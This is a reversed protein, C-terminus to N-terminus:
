EASSSEADRRQESLRADTVSNARGFVAIYRPAAPLGEFLDMELAVFKDPLGGYVIIGRIEFRHEVAQVPLAAGRPVCGIYRALASQDGGIIADVLLPEFGDTGLMATGFCHAIKALLRGFDAIPLRQRVQVTHAQERLLISRANPVFEPTMWHCIGADRLIEKDPELSLCTPEFFVPLSFPTPYEGRAARIERREKGHVAVPLRRKHPEGRAATFGYYQRVGAFMTNVCRSEFASTARQCKGCSAKALIIRGGIAAPIVHEDTLPQGGGDSGCYVCRDYPGFM